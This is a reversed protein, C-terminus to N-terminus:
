AMVAGAAGGAAEAGGFKAVLADLDDGVIVRLRLTCSPCLAIDEGGLLEELTITFEDGCPCHYFFARDAARFEMDEVDVEDYTGHGGGGM